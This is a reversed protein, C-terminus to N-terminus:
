SAVVTVECVETTTVGGVTISATIRATGAAVATVVGASTVSAKASASSSYTVTTNAPLVTPM